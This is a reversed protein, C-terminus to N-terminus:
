EVFEDGAKKILIQGKNSLEKMISVIYTRAENVESLRIPGMIDMLSIVDEARSTSINRIVRFRIDDDAGKLSKAIIRNETIKSLVLRIDRNSLQMIIEFEFISIRKRVEGAFEPMESDFEDMIRKEADPQLYNLIEAITNVGEKGQVFGKESLREYKKSLAESMRSVAEPAISGMKSLRVATEKQTEKPLLRMVAGAKASDIRSLVVAIIQPHESVLIDVIQEPLANKLFSFNNDSNKIKVKHLIDDAKVEGFADCLIRRAAGEGANVTGSNNRIQVIFDGLLDDKQEPSLRHIKSIENSLAIVDKEDLLRLIESAAESGVAVLFAAAKETGNMENINKLYEAMYRVHLM